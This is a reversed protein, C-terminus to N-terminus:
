NNEKLIMTQQSTGDEYNKQITYLGPQLNNILAPNNISTSDQPMLTYNANPIGDNFKIVTGDSPARNYNNYCKRYTADGLEVIMYAFHNFHEIPQNYNSAYTYGSNGTWFSTYDYPSPQNWVEAQSVDVFKYTFGYQLMPHHEETMPGSLYYSGKYPEYLISDPHIEIAHIEPLNVIHNIYNRMYTIQGNSFENVCKGYSMFNFVEPELGYANYPVGCDDVEGNPVYECVPFNVNMGEPTANTDVIADGYIDANFCGDDDRTVNEIFIDCIDCGQSVHFTHKLNFFHGVEHTLNNPYDGDDVFEWECVITRFFENGIFEYAIVDGPPDNNIQGVVYINVDGQHYYNNDRQWDRFTVDEDNPLNILYFDESTLETAGDYKFFINFPNYNRNLQAVANLMQTETLDPNSGDQKNIDWFHVKLIYHEENAFSSLLSTQDVQAWLANFVPDEEMVTGCWNDLQANM